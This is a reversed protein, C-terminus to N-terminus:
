VNKDAGKAKNMLYVTLRVSYATCAFTIITTVICIFLFKWVIGKFVDLYTIISVTAPLFVFSMNKLLFDAVPEVQRAKVVGLVLLVFLIIMALVSGPFPFPLFLM